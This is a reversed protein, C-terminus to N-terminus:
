DAYSLSILELDRAHFLELMKTSPIIVNINNHRDLLSSDRLMSFIVQRVKRQTTMSMDGMGESLCRKSGFFIDFDTLSLQTKLTLCSERLVEIAFERIFRYRRCISVWLLIPKESEPCTLLYSLEYTSLYRLRSALERYLKKSSSATRQQLLNQGIVHERVLNWDRCQVYLEVLAMCENKRLGCTTFAFSYESPIRM